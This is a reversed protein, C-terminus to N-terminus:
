KKKHAWTEDIYEKYDTGFMETVAEFVRNGTLKIDHGTIWGGKKVKPLWAKIDALVSPYDHRGDIYVMDISEDPVHKVVELSSAKFAKINDYDKAMLDFDRLSHLIKERDIEFYNPDSDWIDICLLLKCHKAFCESSVGSFSGIEAIIFYPEVVERIMQLLGGCSNNDNLVYYYM